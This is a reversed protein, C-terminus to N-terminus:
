NEIDLKHDGFFTVQTSFKIKVDRMTDGLNVTLISQSLLYGMNIRDVTTGIAFKRDFRDVRKQILNRINLLDIRVNTYGLGFVRSINKFSAVVLYKDSDGFFGFKKIQYGRAPTYIRDNNDFLQNDYKEIKGYLSVCFLILALAIGVRKM